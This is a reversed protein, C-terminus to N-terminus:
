SMEGFVKQLRVAAKPLNPNVLSPKGAVNANNLGTDYTLVQQQGSGEAVLMLEPEDMGDVGGLAIVIGNLATALKNAHATDLASPTMKNFNNSSSDHFM